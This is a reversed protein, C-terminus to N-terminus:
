GGINGSLIWTNAATKTLKIRSYQGLSKLSKGALYNITVGTGPAFTVQGAGNQIIEIEAGVLLKPQATDSPVTATVAAANTFVVIQKNDVRAFTYSTGSQFNTGFPGGVTNGYEDRGGYPFYAPRGNPGSFGDAISTELSIPNYPSQGM